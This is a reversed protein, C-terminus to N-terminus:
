SVWCPKNVPSHDRSNFVKLVWLFSVALIYKSVELCVILACKIKSNLSTRECCIPYNVQYKLCVIQMFLFNSFYEGGCAYKFTGSLRQPPRYINYLNGKQQTWWFLPLIEQCRNTWSWHSSHEKSVFLCVFLVCTAEESLGETEIGISFFWSHLLLWQMDEFSNGNM